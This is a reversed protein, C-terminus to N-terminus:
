ENTEEATETEQESTKKAIHQYLEVGYKWTVQVIKEALFIAVSEKLLKTFAKSFIM